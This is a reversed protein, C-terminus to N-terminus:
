QPFFIFNICRGIALSNNIRVSSYYLTYIFGAAILYYIPGGMRETNAQVLSHILLVIRTYARSEKRRASTGGIYFDSPIEKRKYYPNICHNFLEREWENIVNWKFAHIKM